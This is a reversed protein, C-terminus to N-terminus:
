PTLTLTSTRSWGPSWSTVYVAYRLGVKADVDLTIVAEPRVCAMIFPSEM